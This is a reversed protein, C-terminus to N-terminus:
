IHNNLQGQSYDFPSLKGFNLFQRHRAICLYNLWTNICCIARSRSFVCLKTKVFRPSISPWGCFPCQHRHCHSSCTCSYCHGTWCWCSRGHCDCNRCRDGDSTEACFGSLNLPNKHSQNSGAMPWWPFTKLSIRSLWIHKKLFSKLNM